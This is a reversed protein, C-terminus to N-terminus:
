NEDMETIVAKVPKVTKRWDTNRSCSPCIKTTGEKLMKDMLEDVGLILSNNSGSTIMADYMEEASGLDVSKIFVSAIATIQLMQGVIGANFTDSRLISGEWLAKQSADSVRCGMEITATKDSWVFGVNLNTKDGLSCTVVRDIGTMYIENSAVSVDAFAAKLGNLMHSELAEGINWRRNAFKYTIEKTKEPIVLAVRLPVPTELKPFVPVYDATNFHYTTTCGALVAMAFIVLASLYRLSAGVIIF